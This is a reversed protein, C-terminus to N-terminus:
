TSGDKSRPRQFLKESFEVNLLRRFGHRANTERCWPLRSRTVLEILKNRVFSYIVVRIFICTWATEINVLLGIFGAPSSEAHNIAPLGFKPVFIFWGNKKNPPFVIPTCPYRVVFWKNWNPHRTCVVLCTVSRTSWYMVPGVINERHSAWGIRGAGVARMAQMLKCIMSITVLVLRLRCFINHM